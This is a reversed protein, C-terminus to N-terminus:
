TMVLFDNWGEGFGEILGELFNAAPANTEELKELKEEIQTAISWSQGEILGWNAIKKDIAPIGTRINNRAYKRLELYGLKGALNVVYAKFANALTSLEEIMEEEIDSGEQEAQIIIAATATINLRLKPNSKGGGLIFGALLRGTSEGVNNLFALYTSNLSELIAKDSQMWDLNVITNGGSVLAQQLTPLALALTTGGIKISGLTAWLSSIGGAALATIGTASGIFWGGVAIAGGGALAGLPDNKAWNVFIGWDGRGIASLLEKGGDFINKAFDGIAKVGNQIGNWVAKAANKLWKGPQMGAISFALSTDETTVGFTKIKATM